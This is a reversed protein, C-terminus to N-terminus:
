GRDLLIDALKLFAVFAQFCDVFIQHLAIHFRCLKLIVLRSEQLYFEFREFLLVFIDLIQMVAEFFLLCIALLFM